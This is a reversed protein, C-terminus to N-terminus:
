QNGAGAAHRATETPCWATEVPRRGGGVQASPNMREHADRRKLSEKDCGSWVKRDPAGERPEGERKAVDVLPLTAVPGM